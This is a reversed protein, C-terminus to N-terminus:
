IFGYLPNIQCAIKTFFARGSQPPSEKARRQHPLGKIKSAQRMLTEKKLKEIAFLFLLLRLKSSTQAM